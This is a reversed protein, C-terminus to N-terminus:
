RMSSPLKKEATTAPSRSPQAAGDRVAGVLRAILGEWDEHDVARVELVATIFSGLGLMIALRSITEPQISDDLAGVEQANAISAALREESSELWSRVLVAVEPDRKAAVIAEVVLAARGPQRRDFTAGAITLFNAVDGETQEGLMRRYQPHGHAQLVAVFLEAKSNYHAYVSGSSLGAHTCIDSISAGDYGKRAFVSAAAALLESRTQEATVGAKRGM